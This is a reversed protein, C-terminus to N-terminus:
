DIVESNPSTVKGIVKGIIASQRISGFSRSDTSQRANLGLVMFRGDPTIESIRKLMYFDKQYPHELLVDDNIKPKQFTYASTDVDIIDGDLYLPSMSDGSVKAQVITDKNTDM